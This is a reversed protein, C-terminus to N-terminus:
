LFCKEYQEVLKWQVNGLFLSPIPNNMDLISPYCKIACKLFIKPLM